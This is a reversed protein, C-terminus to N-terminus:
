TFLNRYEVPVLRLGTQDLLDTCLRHRGVDDIEGALEIIALDVDNSRRGDSEARQLQMAAKSGFPGDDIHGEHLDRRYGYDAMLTELRTITLLQASDGALHNIRSELHDLLRLIVNRRLVPGLHRLNLNGTIEAHHAFGTDAKGFITLIISVHHM